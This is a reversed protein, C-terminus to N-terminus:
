SLVFQPAPMTVPQESFWYVLEADSVKRRQMIARRKKLARPLCKALRWFAPLSGPEYLLCGGAVFVDRLTVPFWYRGYIGSTVNKVRMLFRNKVSHMNVIPPVDRRSGPRVRRVHHAVADPTYLCRWGLLQARWAVDADERYAFFDPDFFGDELSVDDIMKRRYLAAAGSAGFVYEPSEYRGDDAEDSGRDFHRLNPTFYLGASDIRREAMPQFGPGIRLLKGCVTGVTADDEAVAILRSLFDRELLVDPNLALVWDGRTAVIAQNQAAAFGTNKENLVVRVRDSYESLQMRTGDLSANDIVIIEFNPYNQVLLADLCRSIYRQSNCTVISVTISPAKM